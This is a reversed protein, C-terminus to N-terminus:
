EDELEASVAYHKGTVVRDWECSNGALGEATAIAEAESDAEVSFYGEETVEREVTVTYHAM